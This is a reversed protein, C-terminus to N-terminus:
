HQDRRRAHNLADADDTGLSNAFRAVLARFIRAFM